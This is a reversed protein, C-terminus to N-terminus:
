ELNQVQERMKEIESKIEVVAASIPLDNSKSGITNVERNIEQIIFDLKRGAPGGAACCGEAQALHSKLRVIEEDIGCREAMIAVEAAIRSEDPMSQGLLEKLRSELRRRYEVTVLPARGEIASLESHVNQIKLAIDAILREGERGRMATLSALASEAAERLTAWSDEEDIGAREIRMVDPLQLLIQLTAGGPPRGLAGAIKDAADSYAKALEANVAISCARSGQEEHTVFVDAKGRSISAGVLKRLRDELGILHRPLKVSIDSFRHNITRAEVVFKGCDGSAEGRGFGTMSYTM